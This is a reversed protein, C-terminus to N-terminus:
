KLFDERKEPKQLFYILEWMRDHPKYNLNIILTLISKKALYRYSSILKEVMEFIEEDFLNYDLIAHLHDLHLKAFYAYTCHLDELKNRMKEYLHAKIREEDNNLLKPITFTQKNSIECDSENLSRLTKINGTFSVLNILANTEPGYQASQSKRSIFLVLVIIQFIIM